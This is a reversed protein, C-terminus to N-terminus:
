KVEDLHFKKGIMYSISYAILIMIAVKILASPNTLSQILTTGVYGWFYVMFGKGILLAIFYKRFSMSSLGAAINVLFAPTFPTVIIVTLQQLNVKEIIKMVHDIKKYSRIKNDFWERLKSRCLFFSLCCGFITCIWSIIFGWFNGFSIFNLTIFVSLPLIPIMSEVCILLCGLIPGYIGLANIAVNILEDIHSFFEAM